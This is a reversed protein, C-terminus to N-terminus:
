GTGTPGSASRSGLALGGDPQESPGTSAFESTDPKSTPSNPRWCRVHAIKAGERFIALEAPELPKQCFLCFTLPPHAM